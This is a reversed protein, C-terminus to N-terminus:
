PSRTFRITRTHNIECNTCLDYPAAPLPWPAASCCSASSYGKHAAFGYGPYMTDMDRMLRDRTVKAIISAAAISLSKGDGGVITRVPILLRPSRNGDVLALSPAPSLQAVAKTMAQLTATLINSEDIGAADIIGIAVHATAMIPAFLAERKAETLKKSDNLGEPINAADLVVAAAVVPGAWPGRGAEDIGCPILGQALAQEEFSFDPRAM